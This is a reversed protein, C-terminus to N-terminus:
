TGAARQWRCGADDGAGPQDTGLTGHTPQVCGLPQLTSLWCQLDPLASQHSLSSSVDCLVCLNAPQGLKAWYTCSATGGHEGGACRECPIPPIMQLSTVNGSYYAVKQLVLGRHSGRAVADRRRRATVCRHGAGDVNLGPDAPRPADCSQMCEWILNVADAAGISPSSQPRCCAKGLAAAWFSLPPGGPTRPGVRCTRVRNSRRGAGEAVEGRVAQM